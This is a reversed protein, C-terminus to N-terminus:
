IPSLDIQEKRNLMEQYNELTFPCELFDLFQNKNDFHLTKYVRTVLDDGLTKYKQKSHGGVKSRISTLIEGNIYFRCYYDKKRRKTIKFGKNKLRGHIYSLELAM